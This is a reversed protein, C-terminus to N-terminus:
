EVPPRAYKEELAEFQKEANAVATGCLDKDSFFRDRLGKALITIGGTAVAAGGQVLVSEADLVILPKALTGAVKVYPNVLNSLSVGLGKMPVTNLDVDLRETNLDIMAKGFINLRESQAVLLPNGLIKGQEVAALIAVCKVNSYRQDKVFPNVTNLLQSLFDSTFMRMAGARIRGAGSTVKLYGNMAAAMERPSSGSTVFALNVDFSPLASLEEPTEAPLGLKLNSGLMRMAFEVGNATPEMRLGGSLEGGRKTQVAFENVGLAGEAIAGSFVLNRLTHQRASIEDVRIDVNAVFGELADFPLPDDPIVRGDPAATVKKRATPESDPLPPLYPTLNIRSAVIQLDMEPADSFRWSFDGSMENDGVKGEFKQFMVTDANGLLRAVLDASEHPLETGALASLSHIDAIHLDVDLYTRDFRPPNDIKGALELMGDDIRLLFEEISLLGGEWNLETQFSVPINVPVSFEGSQPTLNQLDPANANMQVRASELAPGLGLEIDASLRARAMEFRLDAIKAAGPELTVSGGLSFAKQLGSFADNPPFLTTFDEGDIRFEVQSDDLVSALLFNAELAANLGAFTIDLDRITAREGGSLVQGVASFRGSPLEALEVGFEALTGQLDPLDAQFRIDTGPELPKNGVVGSFSIRDGGTVVEGNKISFGEALRKIELSGEVEKAPLQDIGFAEAVTRIDPVQYQIRASSGALDAADTFNGDVALTMDSAHATVSISAGGAALPALDADLKFPGDLRGRLGMLRNFRGIDPDEIRLSVTARDPNPFNAFQGNVSIQTDGITVTIDEVSLVPGSRSLTGIVNFPDNPVGDIGVLDAVRSTDPGSASLRLDVEALERLNAFNGNALVVFEGFTGALNLQMMDIHPAVSMDLELPGTTIREFGLVDTLYEISPGTLKVNATPRSPELLDAVAVSSDFRIEGVHGTASFEMASFDLLGAVKGATVDLDIVTENINGDLTLQIDQSDLVSESLNDVVIRLPRVMGPNSYVVVADAIVVNDPLVPLSPRDMEEEAEQDVETTDGFAWNNEDLENKELNARLGDVTFSEILIPGNLLSMADVSGEIRRVSVLTPVSSWATSALQVDEASFEITRGLTLHLPGAIRFERQLLESVFVEADDKFRGFDMTLAVTLATALIAVLSILAYLAIRVKM